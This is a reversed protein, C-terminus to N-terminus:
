CVPQATGAGSNWIVMMEERILEELLLLLLESSEVSVCKMSFTDPLKRPKEPEGCLKEGSFRNEPLSLWQTRDFRSYHETMIRGGSHMSYGAQAEQSNWAPTIAPVLVRDGPRFDKVLDVVEACGEHGLIM